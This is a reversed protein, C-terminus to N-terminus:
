GGKQGGDVGSGVEDIVRALDDVADDLEDVLPHDGLRERAVAAVGRYHWLLADPGRKFRRWVRAGKRRADAATTRVNHLADAAKVAVAGLSAQRLRKLGECKRVEWPREVGEADRKCESLAAVIEAVQPGFQEEIRGLSYGQDEVVDHLLGAIALSEPFGHRILIVSVHVPHTIYPTDDGKRNQPRHAMTAVVLAAQYRESYAQARKM